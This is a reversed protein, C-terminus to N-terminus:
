YTRPKYRCTWSFTVWGCRQTLPLLLATIDSFGMLLQPADLDMAYRVAAEVVRGCGSGGRGFWIMDYAPHCLGDLIDETRKTDNASLYQRWNETPRDADYLLHIGSCALSSEAGFADLHGRLSGSPLAM